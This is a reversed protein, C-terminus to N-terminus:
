IASRVGDPCGVLFIFEQRPVDFLHEAVLVVALM